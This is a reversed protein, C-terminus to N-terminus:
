SRWRRVGSFRRSSVLVASLRSAKHSLGPGKEQTARHQQRPLAAHVGRTGCRCGPGGAGAAVSHGGVSGGPLLAVMGFDGRADVAVQGVSREKPAGLGHGGVSQPVGGDFSQVRSRVGQLDPPGPGLDDLGVAQAAMGPARRAGRIVGGLGLGHGHSGGMGVRGLGASLAVTLRRVRSLGSRAFRM